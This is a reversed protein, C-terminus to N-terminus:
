EYIKPDILGHDVLTFYLSKLKYDLVEKVMHSIATPLTCDTNINLSQSTDLTGDKLAQSTKEHLEKDFSIYMLSSICTGPTSVIALDFHIDDSEEQSTIWAKVTGARPDNIGLEAVCEENLTLPIEINGINDINGINAINIKPFNGVISKEIFIRIPFKGTQLDTSM